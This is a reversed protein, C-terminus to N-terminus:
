EDDFEYFRDGDSNIEWIPLHYMCQADAYFVLTAFSFIFPLMTRNAMDGCKTRGFCVCFINILFCVDQIYYILARRKRTYWGGCSAILRLSLSCAELGSLIM